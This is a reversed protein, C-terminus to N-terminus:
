HRTQGSSYRMKRGGTRLASLKFAIDPCLACENLPNLQRLIIGSARHISMLCTSMDVDGNAAETHRMAERVCLARVRYDLRTWDEATLVHWRRGLQAYRRVVGPWAELSGADDIWPTIRALWPPMLEAPCKDSSKAAGCEPSLAALLCARDHGDTWKQRILRNEAIYMDLRDFPNEASM